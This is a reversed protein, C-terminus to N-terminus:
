AGSVIQGATGAARARRRRERRRCPRRVMGRGDLLDVFTAATRALLLDTLLRSPSPFNIAGTLAVVQVPRAPFVSDHSLDTM